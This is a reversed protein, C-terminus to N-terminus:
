ARPGVERQCSRVRAPVGTAVAGAPIDHTVVAGAGIRAGDGICVPGLLTAGAGIMVRHGVQPHRRTPHNSKGGLTVGHFLVVDDGLTATQGIVVGMGHDIFLRRGIQAGPHIEVGTLARVLQSLLRAVLHHHSSWLRHALRYGWVAHLGPYCLAVELRSTAAPDATLAARLDERLRVRWGPNTTM